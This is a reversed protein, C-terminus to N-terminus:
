MKLKIKTACACTFPGPGGSDHNQLFVGTAKLVGNKITGVMACSDAGNTDFSKGPTFGAFSFAQAGNPLDILRIQGYCPNYYGLGGSAGNVVTTVDYTLDAISKLTVPKDMGTCACKQTQSGELYAARVPLAASMLLGLAILALRAISRDTM